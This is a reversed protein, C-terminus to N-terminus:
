TNAVVEEEPSDSEMPAPPEAALEVPRADVDRRRLGASAAMLGINLGKSMVSNVLLMGAMAAPAVATVHALQVGIGLFVLDRNPLLPIRDMIIMAALFTFWTHLPVEPVVVAWQLVQLVNAILLRAVHIGLIVLTLKLPLSFLYRRFRVAITFAVLAVVIGTIVHLASYDIFWNQIQIQGAFVFGALLGVAVLTSAISSVINNDRITRAITGDRLGIRKRAWAFLYIEGSYGLVDNNYVRKRFFAPIGRWFPFRWTIRYILTEALPLMLYAVAFIVYFWPTRPLSTWIRDWGIGGLQFFLWTLLAALFVGRGVRGLVRGTRTRAFVGFGEKAGAARDRIENLTM